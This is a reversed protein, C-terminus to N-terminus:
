MKLDDFLSKFAIQVGIGRAVAVEQGWLLLAGEHGEEPSVAGLSGPEVTAVRLSLPPQGEEHGVVQANLM